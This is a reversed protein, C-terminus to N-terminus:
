GHQAEILAEIRQLQKHYTNNLAFAVREKSKQEDEGHLVADLAKNFVQPYQDNSASSPMFLLSTDQYTEVFHTVVPRGSALYELIKHSNSGDWIKGIGIKWCLWFMDITPLENIMEKPSAPGKLIVNPAQKLFNIFEFVPQFFFGELNNDKNEEYPGWFVFQLEPHSAIVKMMMERDPAEQMLNGIYGVRVPLSVPRQAQQLQQIAFAAFTEYLGHNIFHVPRGCPKIKKAISPSVAFCQDATFLEPPIKDGPFLDVLHFLSHKAGFWKLNLFLDHQFCWLVDPKGGLAKQLAAIQKRILLHYIFAPLFRKGRFFPKYTVVWLNDYGDIKKIRIGAVDLSPPEIFYVKNGQTALATAYHHKSVHLKGWRQPSIIWIIKDKFHFSM